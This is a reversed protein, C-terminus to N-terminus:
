GGELYYNTIVHTSVNGACAYCQELCCVTGNAPCCDCTVLSCNELSHVPSDVSIGSINLVTVTRLSVFSGNDAVYVTSSLIGGNGISRYLPMLVVGTSVNDSVSPVHSAAPYYIMLVFTCFIVLTAFLYWVIDRSISLKHIM